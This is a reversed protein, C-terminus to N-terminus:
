EVLVTSTGFAPEQCPVLDAALLFVAHAVAEIFLLGNGSRPGAPLATEAARM